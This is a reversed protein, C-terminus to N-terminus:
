PGKRSLRHEAALVSVTNVDARGAAEEEFLGTLDNIVSRPLFVAHSFAPRRPRVTRGTVHHVRRRNGRLRRPHRLGSEGLANQHM